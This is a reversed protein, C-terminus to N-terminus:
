RAAEVYFSPSGHPTLSEPTWEGSYTRIAEDRTPHETHGCPAEAGTDDPAIYTVRWFGERSAHRTLAYLGPDQPTRMVILRAADGAAALNREVARRVAPRM